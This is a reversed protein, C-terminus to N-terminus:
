ALMAEDLDDVGKTPPSLVWERVARRALQRTERVMRDIDVKSQEGHVVRSRAAYSEKALKFAAQRDPGSQGVLRAIRLAVRHSLEQNGDPLLLAEFAIWLDILADERTRRGYASDFRGLALALRPDARAAELREVLATLAPGDDPGIDTRLPEILSTMGDVTLLSTEGAPGPVVADAPEPGTWMMTTGTVGPHHLRLATVVNLIRELAGDLSYPPGLSMTWRDEIVHTWEELQAPTLGPISHGGFRGWMEERDDSTMRRIVTDSGIAVMPLMSEINHLPAITWRPVHDSHHWGRWDAVIERALEPRWELGPRRRGYREFMPGIVDNWLALARQRADFAYGIDGKVDPDDALQRASEEMREWDGHPMVQVQQWWIVERTTAELGRPTQQLAPVERTPLGRPLEALERGRECALRLEELLVADFREPGAEGEVKPPQSV